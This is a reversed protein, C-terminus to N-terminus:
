AAIDQCARGAEIQSVHGNALLGCCLGVLYNSVCVARHSVRTIAGSARDGHSSMAKEKILTKAM